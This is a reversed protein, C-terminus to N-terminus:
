RGSGDPTKKLFVTQTPYAFEIGEAEFRQHITLNIAQQIDMYVNYDPVLVYYVSEFQLAFDGYAKFHARDFGTKDQSEIAEKLILPIQELKERPTEYTVGITFVVRRKYMRGYNRIRSQLLDNNAFILQEGSLSRLRTTKIGIEEVSGLFDGIVLFDDVVFPKDIMISLSAFLDSLINQVALAIAIGGIGLGTILATVNVGLNDLALLLVISWAVLRVVFAIATMSSARGRDKPVHDRTREIWFSIAANVWIGSQLLLVLIMVIEVTRRTKEPLIVIMSASFVALALLFLFRTSGLVHVVLDDWPTPTGEALRRFRGRTVVVLLRLILVIAISIGVTLLWRRGSNGYLVGDEFGFM